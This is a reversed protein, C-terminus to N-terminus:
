SGSNAPLEAAVTEGGKLGSLVAVATNSALGLDLDRRKWGDKAQVLAFPRADPSRSFVAQRPILTANKVRALLVDVIVTLSPIVRPDSRSIRLLVPVEKVFNGRWGNSVAISGISFIRAPLRIDPFAEPAVYASAGIRLQRVDAQNVTAEVLMPGPAVIDLYPQGPRLEDGARITDFQANRFTERIVVIGARPARVVMRAANAEARRVELGSEEINLQAVRTQAKQSIEFSETEALLHKYRVRAEELALRFIDAQIASRVSATQLDLAASDVAAKAVRIQQDRAERDALLRAALSTLGAAAQSQEASLNDLRELMSQPDFTALPDGQKVRAGQAILEKLVLHFDGAGGGRSRSGKMYPARLTVSNEGATSGTLRLTRELPGSQVQVTRLVAAPRPSRLLNALKDRSAVTVCTIAAIIGIWFGIQRRPGPPAPPLPLGASAVTQRVVRHQELTAFWLVCASCAKILRNWTLAYGARPQIASPSYM